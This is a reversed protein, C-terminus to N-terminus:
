TVNRPALHQHTRLVYSRGRNVQDIPLFQNYDVINGNNRLILCGVPIGYDWPPFNHLQPCDNAMAAIEAEAATEFEYWWTTAGGGVYLRDGEYDVSLWYFVYYDANVFLADRGTSASDSLDFDASPTMGVGGFSALDGWLGGRVHVTTSPPCSPSLTYRYQDWNQATGARRRRQRELRKVQGELIGWIESM